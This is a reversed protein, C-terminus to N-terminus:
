FLRGGPLRGGHGSVDIKDVQAGSLARDDVLRCSHAALKFTEGVPCAVLMRVDRLRPPEDSRQIQCPTFINIPLKKCEFLKRNGLSANGSVASGRRLTLRRKFPSCAVTVGISPRIRRRPVIDVSVRSEIIRCAPITPMSRDISLM